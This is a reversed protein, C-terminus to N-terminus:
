CNDPMGARTLMAGGRVSIVNGQVVGGRGPRAVGTAADGLRDDDVVVEAAVDDRQSQRRTGADVLGLDALAEAYRTLREGLRDGTEGLLAQDLDLRLLAGEDGADAKGVDALRREHAAGELH